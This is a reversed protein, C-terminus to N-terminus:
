RTAAVKEAPLFPDARDDSPIALMNSLFLADETRFMPDTATWRGNEYAVEGAFVPAVGIEKPAALVPHAFGAAPAEDLYEQQVLPLPSARLLGSRVIANEFFIPYLRAAEDGVGEPGYWRLANLGAVVAGATFPTYVTREAGAQNRFVGAEEDWLPLLRERFIEAARDAFSPENFLRSAEILGYVSLATDRLTTGPERALMEAWSRALRLAEDREQEPAILAYRGLAEIALAREAPAKPPLKQIAAFAQRALPLYNEPDVSDRYATHWYDDSDSNAAAILSSVAWLVAAQDRPEAQGFAGSLAKPAFVGEPTLLEEQLTEAQAEAQPIMMLAALKNAPLDHYQLHFEPSTIKLLSWAQAGPDLTRDFSKPDWRLTAPDSYDPMDVFAPSGAAYLPGVVAMDGMRPRLTYGARRLWDDRQGMSISIKEGLGAFMLPNALSAIAAWYTAPAVTEATYHFDADGAVEAKGATQAIAGSWATTGFALALVLMASAAIRAKDGTM